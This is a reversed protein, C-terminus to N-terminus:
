YFEVAWLRPIARRWFSLASGFSPLRCRTGAACFYPAYCRFPVGDAFALWRPLAFLVGGYLRSLLAAVSFWKCYVLVRRSSLVLRSSRWPPSVDASPVTKSTSCNARPWPWCSWFDWERSVTLLLASSVFLITQYSSSPSIISARSFPWPPAPVGLDHIPQKIFPFPLILALWSVSPYAFSAAIPM